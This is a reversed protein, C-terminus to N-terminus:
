VAIHYSVASGDECEVNFGVALLLLGDGDLYSYMGSFIYDATITVVPEDLDITATGYLINQNDEMCRIEDVIDQGTKGGFLNELVIDSDIGLLCAEACTLDQQAVDAAHIGLPTFFVDFDGRQMLDALITEADTVTTVLKGFPYTQTKMESIRRYNM